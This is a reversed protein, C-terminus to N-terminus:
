QAGDPKISHRDALGIPHSRAGHDLRVQRRGLGGLGHGRRHLAHLQKVLILVDNNDVLGSTHGSM